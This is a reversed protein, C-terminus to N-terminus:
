MQDPTLFRAAYEKNVRHKKGDETIEYYLTKGNKDTGKIIQVKVEKPEDEYEVSDDEEPVIEKDEETQPNLNAIIEKEEETLENEGIPLNAKDVDEAYEETNSFEEILAKDEAEVKDPNVVYEKVFTSQIVSIIDKETFIQDIFQIVFNKDIKKAITKTIVGYEEGNEIEHLVYDWLKDYVKNLVNLEFEEITEYNNPNFGKIIDIATATIEETLGELFKKAKEKNNKSILNLVIIAIVIAVIAIAGVIGYTSM